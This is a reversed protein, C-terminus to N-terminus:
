FFGMARDKDKPVDRSGTFCRVGLECLISVPTNEALGVCPKVFFNITSRSTEVEKLKEYQIRQVEELDEIEKTTLKNAQTRAALEFKGKLDIPQSGSFM